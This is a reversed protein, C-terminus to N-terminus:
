RLVFNQFSRVCSGLWNSGKGVAPAQGARAREGVAVAHGDAVRDVLLDNLSNGWTTSERAREPQASDEFRPKALYTATAILQYRPKALYTATAILQYRPKAFRLRLRLYDEPLHTATGVLRVKTLQYVAWEPGRGTIVWLGRRERRKRRNL